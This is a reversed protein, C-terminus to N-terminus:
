LVLACIKNVNSEVTCINYLFFNREGSKKSQLAPRVSEGLAPTDSYSIKM